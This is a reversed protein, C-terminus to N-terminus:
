KKVTRKVLRPPQRDGRKGIAPVFGEDPMERALGSAVNKAERAKRQGAVLAQKHSDSLVRRAKVQTPMVTGSTEEASVDTEAPRAAAGEPGTSGLAAIARDIADLQELLDRRRGELLRVIQKLTAV